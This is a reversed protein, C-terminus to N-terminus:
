KELDVRMVEFEEKTIEGQAYRKKLIVIDTDSLDNNPEDGYKPFLNSFLWLVAGILAIWFIAMMFLGYWGFGYMM